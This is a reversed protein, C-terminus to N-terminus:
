VFVNGNRIEDVIIITFYYFIHDVAPWETKMLDQISLLRGNRDPHYKEIHSSVNCLWLFVINLWRDFGFGNV